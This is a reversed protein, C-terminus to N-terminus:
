ERRLARKLDHVWAWSPEHRVMRGPPVRRGGCGECREARAKSCVRTEGGLGTLAPENTPEWQRRRRTAKPTAM